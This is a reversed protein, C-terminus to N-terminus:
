ASLTFLYGLHEGIAVGAYRQFAQFTIAVSDRTAPSSEPDTYIDALSPVLFSWRILGLVQAVGALHSASSRWRGFRESAGHLPSFIKLWAAGGKRQCM